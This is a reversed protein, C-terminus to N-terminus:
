VNAAFAESNVTGEAVTTLSEDANKEEQLTENLLEAVDDLGLVNAWTCVCGYTAIEYHEIKQAAAILAADAFPTEAYENMVDKAEKILGEMAPCKDAKVPMKLLHFVQELRKVHGETEKLHKQFTRSLPQSSAYQAMKPLAKVLQNEADLLDMLQETFLEHNQTGRRKM